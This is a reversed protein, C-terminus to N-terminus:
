SGYKVRGFDIWWDAFHRRIMEREREDMDFHYGFNLGVLEELETAAAARIEPAKHVLGDILWEIRHRYYNQEWWALWKDENQAFDQKTLSVLANCASEVVTLDSDNMLAIFAPISDVDGLAALADTAAKRPRPSPHSLDARLDYLVDPFQEMSKFKLLTQGAIKRIQLDSDQLSHALLAASEPYVLESMLYTAYFRVEPDKHHFLPAIAFVAPRGIVVLARLIASCDMVPPLEGQHTVRNVRLSGPFRSILARIAPSGLRKLEIQAHRVAVIDDGELDNLLATLTIALQEENQNMKASFNPSQVESDMLDSPSNSSVTPHEGKDQHLPRVSDFPYGQIPVDASVESSLIRSSINKIAIRGIPASIGALNPSTVSTAPKTPPPLSEKAAPELSQNIATTTQNQKKELILRKFVQAAEEALRILPQQISPLLKKPYNHGILLCITKQNLSVPILALETRMSMGAAILVTESADTNPPLGWYVENTKVARSIISPIALVLKRNRIHERDLHTAVIELHGELRSQKVIYLQVCDLYQHFGQILILLLEDRSKAQKMALIAADLALPAASKAAKTRRNLQYKEFDIAPAVAPPLASSSTEIPPAVDIDPSIDPSSSIEPIEATIRRDQKGQEIWQGEALWFPHEPPLTAHSSEVYESAAMPPVAEIELTDRKREEGLEGILEQSILPIDLLMDASIPSDEIILPKPREVIIEQEPVVKINELPLPQEIITDVESYEVDVEISSISEPPVVPLQRETPKASITVRMQTFDESNPAAPELGLKAIIKQFRVPLSVGYVSQYAQVIRVEPAVFPVIECNLEFALEELAVHDVDEAVLLFITDEVRSVPCIRLGEAQELRINQAVSPDANQLLEATLPPYGTTRSLLTLLISEALLNKELLITDVQGGKIVQLALLEKLAEVRLHGEQVLISCFSSGM